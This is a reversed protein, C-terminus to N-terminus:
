PMFTKASFRISSAIRSAALTIREHSPIMDAANMLMIPPLRDISLFTSLTTYSSPIPIEAQTSPFRTSIPLRSSICFWSM